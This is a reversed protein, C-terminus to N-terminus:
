RWRWVPKRKQLFAERAERSDDLKMLRATYDQELRYGELFHLGEARNMSEKALRLALPSKAALDRALADATAHLEATPVVQSIAGLAALESAPAMRGTLFMERAKYPGLMRVLHSSAGLLGMNIETLGFTATDSAVIIDCCAVLAVGGGIAPGKVPAIVPVACEHLARFAERAPLGVDILERPSDSPPVAVDKLDVGAIFARDGETRFVAVTVSRDEAFSDFLMALDTLVQRTLANVPPRCFTVTAVGDQVDVELHEM